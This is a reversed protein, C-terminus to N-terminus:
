FHQSLIGGEREKTGNLTMNSGQERGRSDEWVLGESMFTVAVSILPDLQCLQELHYDGTRINDYFESFSHEQIPM